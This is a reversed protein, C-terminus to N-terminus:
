EKSTQSPADFQFVCWELPGTAARTLIWERAIIRGGSSPLWQEMSQGFIFPFDAVRAVMRWSRNRLFPPPGKKTIDVVRRAGFPRWLATEPDTGTLYGVIRDEPTLHQRIPALCDNRNRYISYVDHMRKVLANGPLARALKESASLAPWLPRSPTLVLSPLASLAAAFALTKWWRQRAMEAAAPLLLVSAILLPYYPLLLRSTSDGGMKVMYVSLAVWCGLCILKGLKRGPPCFAGPRRRFGAALTVALLATIGLGLGASEEQQLEEAGLSLAPFNRLLPARRPSQMWDVVMDNWPKTAPMVPPMVNRCVLQLSNGVLGYCPNTVKIGPM